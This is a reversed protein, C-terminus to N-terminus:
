EYGLRCMVTYLPGFDFGEHKKFGSIVGNILLFNLIPLHFKTKVDDVFKVELDCDPFCKFLFANRKSTNFIDKNKHTALLYYKTGFGSWNELKHRYFDVGMDEDTLFHTYNILPANEKQDKLNSTNGDQLNMLEQAPTMEHHTFGAKDNLAIVSNRQEEYVRLGESSPLGVDNDPVEQDNGTYPPFYIVTKRALRNEVDLAENLCHSDEAPNVVQRDDRKRKLSGASCFSGFFWLVCFFIIFFSSGKPMEFFVM